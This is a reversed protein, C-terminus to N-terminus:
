GFIDGFKPNSLMQIGQPTFSYIGQYTMEAGSKLSDNITEVYLDFAHGMLIATFLFQEGQTLDLKVVNRWVKVQSPPIETRKEPDEKWGMLIEPIPVEFEFTFDLISGSFDISGAYLKGEDVQRVKKRVVIGM